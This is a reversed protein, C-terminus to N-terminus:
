DGGTDVEEYEGCMTFLQAFFDVIRITFGLAEEQDDKNLEVVKSVAISGVPKDTPKHMIGKHMFKNRKQIIEEVKGPIDKFGMDEAHKNLKKGTLEKILKRKGRLDISNVIEYSIDQVWSKRVILRATFEDILTEYIVAFLIIVLIPKNMGAVECMLQIIQVTSEPPYSGRMTEKKCSPCTSRFRGPNLPDPIRLNGDPIVAGCELCDSYIELTKQLKKIQDGMSMGHISQGKRM